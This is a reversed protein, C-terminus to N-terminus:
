RARDPAPSAEPPMAARSSENERAAALAERLVDADGIHNALLLILKANVRASAAESLGDHLAILAEYFADADAINPGTNLRTMRADENAVSPGVRRGCGARRVCRRIAARSAAALVDHVDFSRWRACLHQDPRFLFSSGARADYRQRLLGGVDHVAAGSDDGVSVVRCSPSAAGLAGIADEHVADFVLATFGGHLYDLLWRGGSGSVPADLAAAGLTM